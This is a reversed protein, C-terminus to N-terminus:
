VEKKLHELSSDYSQKVLLFISELRKSNIGDSDCYDQLTRCQVELQLAGLSQAGGKLKHAFHRVEKTEGRAVAKELDLLITNSQNTFLDLIEAFYHPKNVRNCIQKLTSITQKDIVNTDM